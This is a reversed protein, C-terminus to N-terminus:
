KVIRLRDAADAEAKLATCEALAQEAKAYAKRIDARTQAIQFEGDDWVEAALRKHSGFAPDTRDGNGEGLLTELWEAHLAARRGIRVLKQIQARPHMTRRDKPTLLSKPATTTTM